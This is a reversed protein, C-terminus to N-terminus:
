QSIGISWYEAITLKGWLKAISGSFTERYEPATPFLLALLVFKVSGSFLWICIVWKPVMSGPEPTVTEM